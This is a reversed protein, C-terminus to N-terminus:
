LKPHKWLSPQFFTNLFDLFWTSVSAEREPHWMCAVIPLIAHEMAECYGEADFAIGKFAKPLTDLTYRHYSNVKVSWEPFAWQNSGFRVKHECAVHGTLPKLSGGFYETLFLMGHCIGLVPLHKAKAYDVVQSELRYRSPHDGGGSLIFGDLAMAEFFVSAQPLNNPLPILHAQICELLNCWRQDLCDRVEQHQDLEVRQSVGIKLM